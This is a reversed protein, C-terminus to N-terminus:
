KLSGATGNNHGDLWALSKLRGLIELRRAETAQSWDTIEEVTRGCGLCFTRLSDLKCIRTCPSNM